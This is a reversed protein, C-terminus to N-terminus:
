SGKLLTLVFRNLSNSIHGKSTKFLPSFIKTVAFSLFIDITSTVLEEFKVSNIPKIIAAGSSPTNPVANKPNYVPAFFILSLLM